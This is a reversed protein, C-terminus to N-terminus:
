QAAVKEPEIKFNGPGMAEQLCFIGCTQDTKSKHPQITEPSIKKSVNLPQFMNSGYPDMVELLALAQLPQHLPTFFHLAFGCKWAFCQSIVYM